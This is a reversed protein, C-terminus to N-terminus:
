GPIGTIQYPITQHPLPLGWRKPSGVLYQLKNSSLYSVLRWVTSNVANVCRAQSWPWLFILNQLSLSLTRFFSYKSWAAVPWPGRFYKTRVMWCPFKGSCTNSSARFNLHSTQWSCLEGLGLFRAVKSGCGGFNAVTDASTPCQYWGLLLSFHCNKIKTSSPELNLTARMIFWPWRLCM